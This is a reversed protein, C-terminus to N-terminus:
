GSGCHQQHQDVAFSTKHWHEQPTDSKSLFISVPVIGDLQLACHRLIQRFNVFETSAFLITCPLSLYGFSMQALANQM